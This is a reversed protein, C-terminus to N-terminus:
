NEGGIGKRDAERLTHIHTHTHSHTHTHGHTHAHTLATEQKQWRQQTHQAAQRGAQKPEREREAQVLKFSKSSSCPPPPAMLVSPACPLIRNASVSPPSRSLSLFFHPSLLPPLSPSSSWKGCKSASPTSTHLSLHHLFCEREKM